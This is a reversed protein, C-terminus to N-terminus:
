MKKIFKVLNLLSEYKIKMFIRTNNITKDAMKKTIAAILNFRLLLLWIGIHIIDINVNIIGKIDLDNKPCINWERNVM